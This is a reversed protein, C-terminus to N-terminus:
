AYNHVFEHFFFSCLAIELFVHKQAEIIPWFYFGAGYEGGRNFISFGNISTLVRFFTLIEQFDTIQAASIPWLIDFCSSQGYFYLIRTWFSNFM